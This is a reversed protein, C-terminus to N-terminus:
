EATKPKYKVSGKAAKFSRTLCSIFPNPKTFYHWLTFERNRFFWMAVRLSFRSTMLTHYISIVERAFDADSPKLVGSDLIAKINDYQEKHLDYRTRKKSYHTSSDHRRHYILNEHLYQVKGNNFACVGIWWDYFVGEKFPLIDKRLETKFITTCGQVFNGAVIHRMSTCRSRDYENTISPNPLPHGTFAKTSHHMLVTDPLWEDMVRQLKNTAWIDDQDCIAIYDGLCLSVAKEFNRNFGLNEENCHIRVRTDQAAFERVISVTDDTSCDDVVVLELNQFTQDLISTIQERIYKAGNYTCMAVSLTPKTSSDM